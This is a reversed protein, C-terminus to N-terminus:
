NHIVLQESLLKGNTQFIITYMGKQLNELEGLSITVNGEAYQISKSIITKGHSNVLQLEGTGKTEMSFSVQTFSSAPNPSLQLHTSYNKASLMLVNSTKVKNDNDVLMLRYFLKNGTLGTLLDSYQYAKNNVSVNAKIIAVSTYNIGDSSRQLYIRNLQDNEFIIWSLEAKTNNKISGKFETLHAAVVAVNPLGSSDPSLQTNAYGDQQGLAAILIVLLYRRFVPTTKKIM